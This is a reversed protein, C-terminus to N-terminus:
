TQKTKKLDFLKTPLSNPNIKLNKVNSQWSIKWAYISKEHQYFQQFRRRQKLVVGGGEEAREFLSPFRYGETFILDGNTISTFLLSIIKCLNFITSFIGFWM